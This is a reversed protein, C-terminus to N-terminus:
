PAASLSPIVHPAKLTQPMFILPDLLFTLGFNMKRNRM